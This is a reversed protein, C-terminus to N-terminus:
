VDDADKGGLELGKFIIHDARIGLRKILDPVGTAKPTSPIMFLLTSLWIYSLTAM